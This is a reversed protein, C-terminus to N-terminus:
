SRDSAIQVCGQSPSLRIVLRNHSDKAVPFSWHTADLMEKTYEYHPYAEDFLSGAEQALMDQLPFPFLWMWGVDSPFANEPNEGIIHASKPNIRHELRCQTTTQSM